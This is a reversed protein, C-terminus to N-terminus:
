FGRRITEGIISLENPITLDNFNFNYWYYSDITKYPNSLILGYLINMHQNNILVNLNNNDIDILFINKFENENIHDDIFYNKIHNIIINNIDNASFLKIQPLIIKNKECSLIYQQKDKPNATVISVNIFTDFM